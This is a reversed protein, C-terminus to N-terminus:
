MQYIGIQFILFIYYHNQNNFMYAMNINNKTNWKSIGDFSNLSTCNSFMYSMDKINSTNWESIDPLSILDNCNDFIYSMNEINNIEYLQVFLEKDNKKKELNYFETLYNVKNRILILCNNKNNEVFQKGFLKVNENENNIKYIINIQNRINYYINNMSKVNSINWKLINPLKLLSKCNYFMYSMDIVKETSLEEIEPVSILDECDYFMYSM